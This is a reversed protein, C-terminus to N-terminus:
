AWASERGMAYVPTIGALVRALVGPAGAVIGRTQIPVAKNYTLPLGTCDTIEGGAERLIIEPACTDWEKLYPGPHVYVDREGEAIRACKIGVSGSSVVDSVQLAETMQQLMTDSHSRSAIMRLPGGSFYPCQLAHREGFREVWAGMGLEASYLVNDAPLYVVGLTPTGNVVLAIMVSFEGNQALFEKTGDLPDVIWLRTASLRALSDASEESLVPDSGFAEQLGVMICENSARDAETVPSSVSGNRITAVGYYRMAANGALRALAELSKLEASIMM